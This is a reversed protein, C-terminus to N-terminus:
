QLYYTAMTLSLTADTPNFDFSQIDLLKTNAEITELCKKLTAYNVASLKINALTTRLQVSGAAAKDKALASDGLVINKGQNTQISLDDLKVGLDSAIASLNVYLNAEDPGYPLIEVIKQRDAPSIGEYSMLNKKYEM